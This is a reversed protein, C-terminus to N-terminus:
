WCTSTLEACCGFEQVSSWGALARATKRYPFGCSTEGDGGSEVPIEPDGGAGRVAHRARPNLLLWRLQTRRRLRERQADWRARRSDLMDRLWGEDVGPALAVVWGFHNRAEETQPFLFDRAHSHVELRPNRYDNIAIELIASGLNRKFPTPPQDIGGVAYIETKALWVAANM